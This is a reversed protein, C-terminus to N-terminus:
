EQMIGRAPYIWSFTVCGFFAIEGPYSLSNLCNLM